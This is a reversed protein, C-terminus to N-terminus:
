YRHDSTGGEKRWRKEFLESGVLALRSHNSVKVFPESTHANGKAALTMDVDGRDECGVGCKQATVQARSRDIEVIVKAVKVHVVLCSLSADVVSVADLSSCSVAAIDKGGDRMDGSILCLM